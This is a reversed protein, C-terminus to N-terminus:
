DRSTLSAVSHIRRAIWCADLELAMSAFKRIGYHSILRYCVYPLLDFDTFITFVSVAVPCAPLVFM